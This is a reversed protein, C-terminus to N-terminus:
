SPPADPSKLFFTVLIGTILISTLVVSYILNQILAGEELGLQLPLSGLVAAATGRPILFMTSRLDLPNKMARDSGLTTLLRALFLALTILIAELLLPINTLTVSIGLYIFFFIKLLFVIESFFRIENEDHNSPSLQAYRKLLPLDLLHANGMTIGFALVAVPGSYGLLEVIGFIIFVFAPTTFLANQLQRIRNLLISWIYGGIGGTIAALIFSSILTGVVKGVHLESRKLVDLAALSIVICLAEGVASELILTTRTSDSLPLQRVLPIVLAPAPGALVASVFVATQFSTSAVFLCILVLLGFSIAYVTITLVLSPRLSRKLTEFGLELGGHFLIVVLTVTIFVSGLSGFASPDVVHLIPGLLVGLLILYVVEPVKTRQFLASFLHALFVLTGIALLVIGKEM